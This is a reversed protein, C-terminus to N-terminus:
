GIHCGALCKIVVQCSMRTCVYDTKNIKREKDRRPHIPNLWLFNGNAYTLFHDLDVIEYLKVITTKHPDTKGRSFKRTCIVIGQM